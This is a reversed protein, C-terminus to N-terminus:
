GENTIEKNRGRGSIGVGMFFKNKSEQGENKL